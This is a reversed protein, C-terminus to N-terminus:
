KMFMEFSVSGRGNGNRGESASVSVSYNTTANRVYFSILRSM